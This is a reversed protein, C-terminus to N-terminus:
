LSCNGAIRYGAAIAESASTFEVRNHDAVRDYSPCKGEIHFIRSNRNGRVSGEAVKPTDASDAVKLPVQSKRQQEGWRKDGSIYPNNWGQVKAIKIDREREAHTVPYQRDWAALLQQQQGSLRLNYRDAYYLHVRAIHGKLHDAPEAIRQKFEVKFNCAGYQTAPGSVMGFRYNSRDGNVQGIAPVLGHM